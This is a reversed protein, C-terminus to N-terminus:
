MDSEDNKRVNVSSTGHGQPQHPDRHSVAGTEKESEVYLGVWSPGVVRNRGVVEIKRGLVRSNKLGFGMSKYRSHSYQLVRHQCRDGAVFLMETM